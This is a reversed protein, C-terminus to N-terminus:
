PLSSSLLAGAAAMLGWALSNQTSADNDEIWSTTSNGTEWNLCGYVLPFSTRRLHGPTVVEQNSCAACDKFACYQGSAEGMYGHFFSHKAPVPDSLCPDTGLIDDAIWDQFWAPNVLFGFHDGHKDVQGASEVAAYVRSNLVSDFLTWPGGSDGSASQKEDPWEPTCILSPVRKPEPADLNCHKDATGVAAIPLQLLKLDASPDHTEGDTAGFGLFTWPKQSAVWTSLNYGLGGIKVPTVGPCGASDDLTVLAIDYGVAHEYYVPKRVSRIKYMDQLECGDDVNDPDLPTNVPGAYGLVARINPNHIGPDPAEFFCHAATLVTAPGVLAGGCFAQCDNSTVFVVFWPFNENVEAQDLIKGGNILMRPASCTASAFCAGLVLIRMLLRM